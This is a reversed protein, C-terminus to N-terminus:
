QLEEFVIKFDSCIDMTTDTESILQNKIRTCLESNYAGVCGTCHGVRKEKVAILKMGEVELEIKPVLDIMVDGTQEHFRTDAVFEIGIAELGEESLPIYKRADGYDGNTEYMPCNLIASLMSSSVEIYTSYPIKLLIKVTNM